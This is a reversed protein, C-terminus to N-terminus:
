SSALVHRGGTPLIKIAHRGPSEGNGRIQVRRWGRLMLGNVSFGYLEDPLAERWVLALAMSM